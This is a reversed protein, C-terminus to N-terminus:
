KARSVVGVWYNNAFIGFKPCKIESLLIVEKKENFLYLLFTKKENKSAPKQGFFNADARFIIAKGSVPPSCGGSCWPEYAYTRETRHKTKRQATFRMTFHTFYSNQM